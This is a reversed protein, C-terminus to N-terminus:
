RQAHGPCAPPGSTGMLFDFITMDMVDLIRHSSDYPPTQKVEECYDPDVEWRRPAPTLRTPEKAPGPAGSCGGPHILVARERAARPSRTCSPHRRPVSRRCPVGVLLMQPLM